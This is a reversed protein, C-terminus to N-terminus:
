SWRNSSSECCAVCPLQPSSFTIPSDVQALGGLEIEDAKLHMPINMDDALGDIVQQLPIANYSIDQVQRRLAATIRQESENDM